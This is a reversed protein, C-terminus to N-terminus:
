KVKSQWSKIQDDYTKQGHHDILEMKNKPDLWYDLKDKIRKVEKSSVKPKVKISRRLQGEINSSLKDHKKSHSLTSQTQALIHHAIEHALRYQWEDPHEKIADWEGITINVPSIAKTGRVRSTAYYAEGGSLQKNSFKVKVSPINNKKSIKDVTRQIDSELSENLYEETLYRRLRM